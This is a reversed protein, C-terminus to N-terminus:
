PDYHVVVNIKTGIGLASTITFAAGIEEARARMNNLGLRGNDVMNPDFGRGDDQIELTFRGNQGHLTILITEARAHRLINNLAEQAIQYLATELPLPLRLDPDAQLRVQVDSRGEVATLRLELAHALGKQELILPRLQHIFLRMERIAQRAAKSIKAFMPLIPELNGAAAHMKGVETLTALGYLSQIVSDHLDRALRQREELVITRQRLRDTQAAISLQRSISILLAIENLSYSQGLARYVILVGSLQEGASLPAILLTTPVLQMFHPARPDTSTDAILVPDRDQQNIIKLFSGDAITKQILPLWDGIGQHTALHYDAHPPIGEEDALTIFGADSSLARIASSLSATLLAPFDQAQSAAKTVDYLASLEYTRAAVRRELSDALHRLETQAHQRQTLEDQLSAAMKNFAATLFGVEDEHVVPIAINLDGDDAQQVGALLRNLPRILDANFFLPFIILIFLTSYIVAWIMIVSVARPFRRMEALTFGVEYEMGARRFTYAAYQHLSGPPNSGYRFKVATIGNEAHLLSQIFSVWIAPPLTGATIQQQEAILSPMDVTGQKDYLLQATTTDPWAVIYAIEDPLAATEDARIVKQVIKTYAINQTNVWDIATSVMFIGLIGLILLLTTLSLGLLRIILGPQRQTLEFSAYVITVVMLLLSLNIAYVATLSSIHGTRSLGTAIGQILGLSLALSFNRLLRAQRHSPRYFALWAHHWGAAATKQQEIIIVRRISVLLAALFMLPNLFWFLPFVATTFAHVGYIQWTYWSSIIVATLSIGVAFFRALGAERSTVQQPYHYNFGILAAMSITAFTDTFLDLVGGWLIVASFFMVTVGATFSALSTILFWSAVTKKKLRLLYIVSLSGIIFLSVANFTYPNFDIYSLYPASMM